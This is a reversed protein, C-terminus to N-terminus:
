SVKTNRLERDLKGLQRMSRRGLNILRILNRLLEMVLKAELREKSRRGKRKKMEMLIKAIRLRLIRKNQIKIRVRMVVVLVVKVIQAIKVTRHALNLHTMKM